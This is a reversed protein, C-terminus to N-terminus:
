EFAYRVHEERGSLGLWELPIQGEFASEARGMAIAGLAGLWRGAGHALPSDIRNAIQRRVRDIKREPIGRFIPLVDIPAAGEFAEDLVALALRWIERLAVEGGALPIPRLTAVHLYGTLDCLMLEGGWSSGDPGFGAGDYAVGLVPGQLAHEGMVAAI